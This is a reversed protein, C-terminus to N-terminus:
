DLTEQLSEFDAVLDDPLEVPDIRVIIGLKPHDLYHIEESRMRRSQDLVMFGAVPEPLPTAEPPQQEPMLELGPGPTEIAPPVALYVPRQGMGPERYSLQAQFHLFRGLTVALSGELQYRGSLRAGSQIFLAEPQDRGPVPQLWRGHLLVRHGGRRELLRADRRMLFEETPLWRYSREQLQEEFRHILEMFELLPDPELVPQIAPVAVAGETIPDAPEPSEEFGILPTSELTAFEWAAELTGLTQPDLEYGAGIQDPAPFFTRIGTPLEPANLNTLREISNMEMVPGRQFVIVETVYWDRALFDSVEDAAYGPLPLCAATAIGCCAIVSLAICHPSRM